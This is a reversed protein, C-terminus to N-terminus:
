AAQGEAPQDGYVLHEPRLDVGKDSALELLARHYTSPILGDCGRPRPLAWRAVTSPDLYDRALYPALARALPRIGGLRNIVYEAPRM